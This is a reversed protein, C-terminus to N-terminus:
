NNIGWLTFAVGCFWYSYSLLAVTIPLAFQWDTKWCQPLIGPCLFFSCHGWSHDSTHGWPWRGEKCRARHTPQYFMPHPPRAPLPSMHVFYVPPVSIPLILFLSAGGLCVELCAGCDMTVDLLQGMLPKLWLWWVTLWRGTTLCALQPGLRWCIYPGQLPSHIDVSYPCSLTVELLKNVKKKREIVNCKCKKYWWPWRGNRSSESAEGISVMAMLFLKGSTEAAGTAVM